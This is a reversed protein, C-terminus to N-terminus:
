FKMERMVVGVWPHRLHVGVTFPEISGNLLFEHVVVRMLKQFGLLEIQDEHFIEDPEVRFTRMIGEIHM